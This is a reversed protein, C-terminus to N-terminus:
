IGLVTLCWDLGAPVASVTGFQGFYERVEDESSTSAIGGVFVKKTVRSPQGNGGGGGGGAGGQLSVSPLDGGLLSSQVTNLLRAVWRLVERKHPQSPTLRSTPPLPNLPCPCVVLSPSSGVAKGDLMHPKIGTVQTVVQPDKFTVFGFGRYALM